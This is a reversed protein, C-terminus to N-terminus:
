HDMLEKWSLGYKLWAMERDRHLFIQDRLVSIYLGYLVNIHRIQQLLCSTVWVIRQIIVNGSAFEVIKELLLRHTGDFPFMLNPLAPNCAALNDMLM